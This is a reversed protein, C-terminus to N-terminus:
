IHAQPVLAEYVGCGSIGATASYSLNAPIRLTDGPQVSITQAGAVISLSGEACWLQTDEGHSRPELQDYAELAWREATIGKADLLDTLEEESSEYVKSWRSKQIM